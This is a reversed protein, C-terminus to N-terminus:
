GFRKEMERNIYSLSMGASKPSGAARLQVHPWDGMTPGLSKMGMEGAIRAMAVYANEPYGYTKTASWAAVGPRVEWYSDVAEGWQHWSEGPGAYTVHSKRTSSQPGVSELCHALFEAGAKRLESIKKNITSTARTSRWERAQQFPDRITCYPVIVIGLEQRLRGKLLVYKSKFEPVLLNLDRSCTM